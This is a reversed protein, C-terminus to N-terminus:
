RWGMLPVLRCNAAGRWLMRLIGSVTQCGL